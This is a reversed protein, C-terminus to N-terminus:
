GITMALYESFDGRIGPKVMGADGRDRCENPPM